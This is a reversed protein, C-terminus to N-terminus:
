RSPEKRRKQVQRTDRQEKPRRCKKTLLLNPEKKNTKMNDFREQEQMRIFSGTGADSSSYIVWQACVAGDRQCSSRTALPTPGIVTSLSQLDARWHTLLLRLALRWSGTARRCTLLTRSLYCGAPSTVAWPSALHHWTTHSGNSPATGVFSSGPTCVRTLHRHAPPRRPSPTLPASGQDARLVRMLSLCPVNRQFLPSHCLPEQTPPPHPLFTLM